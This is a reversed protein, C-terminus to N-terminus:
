FRLSKTREDALKKLKNQREFKYDFHADIITVYKSQNFYWKNISGDDEVMFDGVVFQPISNFLFVIVAAYTREILSNLENLATTGEYGISRGAEAQENREQIQHTSAHVYNCLQGYLRKVDTKFEASQTATLYDIDLQTIPNINSSNLMKEFKKIQDEFASTEAANVICCSKLSLELLYRLERKCVNMFGEKALYEMSTVSQILDDILRLTFNRKASEQDRNANMFCFLLCNTMSQRMSVIRNFEYKYEKSELEKQIDIHPM